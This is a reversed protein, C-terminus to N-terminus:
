NAHASVKFSFMEVVPASFLTEDSFDGSFDGKIPDFNHHKLAFNQGNLLCPIIKAPEEESENVENAFKVTEWTVQSM